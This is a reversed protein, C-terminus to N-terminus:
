RAPMARLAARNEELSKPVGRSKSGAPRKNNENIEGILKIVASKLPEEMAAQTRIYHLTGDFVWGTESGAPLAGIARELQNLEQAAEGYERDAALAAYAILRMAIARDPSIGKSAAAERALKVAERYRGTTLNCEVFNAESASREAPDRAEELLRRNVRYARAYGTPDKQSVTEHYLYALQQRPYSVQPYKRALAELQREAETVEDRDVYIQRLLPYATANKPDSRVAELAKEEAGKYDKDEYLILAQMYRAWAFSPSLEAATAYSALAEKRMDMRLLATARTAHAYADKRDLGIAENASGLAERYDRRQLASQADSILTQKVIREAEARIEEPPAGEAVRRLAQRSDPTGARNIEVLARKQSKRFVKLRGEADVAAASREVGAKGAFLGPNPATAFEVLAELAGGSGVAALADILDTRFDDQDSSVLVNKFWDAHEALMRGAREQVTPLPSGRAIGVLIRSARLRQADSGKEPGLPVALSDLVAMATSEAGLNAITELSESLSQRVPELHSAEAQDLMAYVELLRQASKDPYRRALFMATETVTKEDKFHGPMMVAIAAGRLAKLLPRAPNRTTAIGEGLLVSVLPLSCVVAFIMLKPWLRLRYHLTAAYYRLRAVPGGEELLSRLCALSRETPMAALIGVIRRRLPATGAPWLDRLASISPDQKVRALARAIVAPTAERGNRLREMLQEAPITLAFRKVLGAAWRATARNPSGVESLLAAAGAPTALVSRYVRNRREEAEVREPSRLGLRAGRLIDDLYTGIFLAVLGLAVYFWVLFTQMPGPVAGTFLDPFVRMSLACGIGLLELGLLQLGRRARGHLMHAMGHVLAFIGTANSVFLLIRWAKRRRTKGLLREILISLSAVAACVVLMSGLFLLMSRGAGSLPDGGGVAFTLTALLLTLVGISLNGAMLLATACV